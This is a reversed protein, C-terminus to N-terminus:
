PIKLIIHKLINLSHWTQTAMVATQGNSMYMNKMKYKLTPVGRHVSYVTNLKHVGSVM